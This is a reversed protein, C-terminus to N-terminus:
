RSRTTDEPFYGQAALELTDVIHHFAYRPRCFSVDLQAYAAVALHIIKVTRLVPRVILRQTGDVTTQHAGLHCTAKGTDGEAHEGFALCLVTTIGVKGTETVASLLLFIERKPFVQPPFIDM